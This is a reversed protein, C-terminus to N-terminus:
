SDILVTSQPSLREMEAKDPHLYKGKFDQILIVPLDHARAFALERQVGRSERWGSLPLLALADSRSLIALDRALWFEHDHRVAEPLHLHIADGTAVPAYVACELKVMLKGAAYASEQARAWRVNPREHFYPSALYILDM